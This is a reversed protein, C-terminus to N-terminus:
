DELVPSSLQQVALEALQRVAEGSPILVLTVQGFLETGFEVKLDSWEVEEPIGLIEHCRRYTEPDQKVMSYNTLAM